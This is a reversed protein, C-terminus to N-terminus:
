ELGELYISSPHLASEIPQENEILLYLEHAGDRIENFM